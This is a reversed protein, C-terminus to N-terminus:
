QRVRYFRKQSIIAPTSTPNTAGAVDSWTGLNTSVQLVGGGSWTIIVNSGSLTATLSPVLAVASEQTIDFEPIGSATVSIASLYNVDPTSEQLEFLEDAVFHIGNVWVDTAVPWTWIICGMIYPYSFRGAKGGGTPWRSAFAVVGNPQGTFAAL